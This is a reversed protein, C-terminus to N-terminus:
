KDPEDTVLKLCGNVPSEMRLRDNLAEFHRMAMQIKLEARELVAAVLFDEV